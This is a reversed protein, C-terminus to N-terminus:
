QAPQSESAALSFASRGGAERLSVLRGLVPLLAGAIEEGVQEHFEVPRGIPDAIDDAADTARRSRAAAMTKVLARCRDAFTDGEPQEAGVLRVLDAAERLTFTRSLARPAANLVVRRHTRTMTLTLDADIAMDDVLQRAAFGAPDGGLGALVLASDPHVGSGVVAQTGASWVRIAQADAGLVEDLYARGLREALASRCINGTCVILVQFTEGLAGHRVVGGTDGASGESLDGPLEGRGRVAARRVRRRGLIM